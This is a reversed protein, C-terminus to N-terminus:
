KGGNRHDGPRRPPPWASRVSMPVPTVIRHITVTVVTQNHNRDFRIAVAVAKRM